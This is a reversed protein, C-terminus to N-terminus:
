ASLIKKSTKEQFFKKKRVVHNEILTFLPARVPQQREGVSRKTDNRGNKHNVNVYGWLKHRTSRPFSPPIPIIKGGGLM